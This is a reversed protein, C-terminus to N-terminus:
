VRKVRKAGSPSAVVARKTGSPGAVAAAGAVVSKLQGWALAWAEVAPPIATHLSRIDTDLQAWQQLMLAARNAARQLQADEKDLREVLQQLFVSENTMSVALDLVVAM